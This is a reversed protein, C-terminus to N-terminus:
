SPRCTRMGSILFLCMRMMIKTMKQMIKKTLILIAMSGDEDENEMEHQMSGVGAEEDEDWHVDGDAEGSEPGEGSEPTGASQGSEVSQSM